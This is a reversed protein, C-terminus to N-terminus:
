NVTNQPRLARSHYPPRSHATLGRGGFLRVAERKNCACVTALKQTISSKQEAICSRAAGRLFWQFEYRNGKALLGQPTVYAMPTGAWLTPASEHAKRFSRIPREVEEGRSRSCPLLVPRRKKRFGM